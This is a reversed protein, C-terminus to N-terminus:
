KKIRALYTQAASFWRFMFYLRQNYSFLLIVQIEAPSHKPMTDLRAQTYSVLSLSSHIYEDSEFQGKKVQNFLLINFTCIWYCNRLCPDQWQIHRAKEWKKRKQREKWEEADRCQTTIIPLPLFFYFFFFSLHSMNTYSVQNIRGATMHKDWLNLWALTLEGCERFIPHTRPFQSRSM